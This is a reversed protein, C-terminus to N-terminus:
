ISTWTLLDGLFGEKNREVDVHNQPGNGASVLGKELLSAKILPMKLFTVSTKTSDLDYAARWIQLNKPFENKFQHTRQSNVENIFKIIINKNNEQLLMETQKGFTGPSKSSASSSRLMKWSVIVVTEKAGGRWCNIGSAM